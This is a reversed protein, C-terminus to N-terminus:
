AKKSYPNDIKRYKVRIPTGFMDFATRMSNVLYKTYSPPLDNPINAFITFTPPRQGTQTIYKLRIRRGMVSLPPIHAETASKLWRNLANTSIDSQWMKEAKFIAKFMHNLNKDKLASMYVIPIGVVDTMNRSILYDLEEKFAKTNEVLDYKNVILVVARGENIAVNAITLDQKELAQSADIAIAVVHSRRIANITEASSLSEVEENIRAKKRLGATDVLEITKGDVELTHSIADRTTGSIDSTIVREFGLLKNFITSKGVNPRGVICLRLAQTETNEEEITAKPEIDKSALTIADGINNFGLNHEAAIFIPDGFGLKYLAKYDLNQKGESKNALLIIKKGFKRVQNAFDKDDDDLGYRADVMFLILDAERAATLTQSVMSKSLVDKSKELGATDILTFEQKGLTVKYEKRDRTVGPKDHTIALRRGCLKNFLTSKGVNPKGLIAVKITM